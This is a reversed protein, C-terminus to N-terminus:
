FIKWRGLFQLKSGGLYQITNYQINIEAIIANVLLIITPIYIYANLHDSHNDVVM